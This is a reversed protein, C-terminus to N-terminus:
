VVRHSTRYEQPTMGTMRKFLRSFYSHRTYGAEEAIEGVSLFTTKLLGQARSVRLENVYDVYRKGITKKFLRSLYESSVGLRQAMEKQSFDLRSSKQLESLARHVLHNRRIRVASATATHGLILGAYSLAHFFLEAHGLLEHQSSHVFHDSLQDVSDRDLDLGKATVREALYSVTRRREPFRRIQGLSLTAVMRDESVIPIVLENVGFDCEDVFPRGIQQARANRRTNCCLLCTEFQLKKMTECFPNKHGMRRLLFTNRERSKEEFYIVGTLGTLREMSSILRELTHSGDETFLKRPDEAAIM